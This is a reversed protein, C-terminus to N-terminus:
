VASAGRCSDRHDILSARDKFIEKCAPCTLIFTSSAAASEVINEVPALPTEFDFNALEAPPDKIETMCTGCVIEALAYKLKKSNEPLKTYEKECLACLSLGQLSRAQKRQLGGYVADLRDLVIQELNGIWLRLFDLASLSVKHTDNYKQLSEPSVLTMNSIYYIARILLEIKIVQVKSSDAVDALANYISLMEGANCLRLTFIKNKWIPDEWDKFPKIELLGYNKSLTGLQELSGLLPFLADVDTSDLIHDVM